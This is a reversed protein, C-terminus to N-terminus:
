LLKSLPNQLSIDNEQEQLIINIRRNILIKGSDNGAQESLRGDRKSENLIRRGEFPTKLLEPLDQRVPVSNAM